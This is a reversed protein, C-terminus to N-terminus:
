NFWDSRFYQLFDYFNSIEINRRNENNNNKQQEGGIKYMYIIFLQMSIEILDNFEMKIILKETIM